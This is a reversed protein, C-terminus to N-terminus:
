VSVINYISGHAAMNARLGVGIWRVNLSDFRLCSEFKVWNKYLKTATLQIQRLCNHICRTTDAVNCHLSHLTEPQVGVQEEIVERSAMLVFATQIDHM